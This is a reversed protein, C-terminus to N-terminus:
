PRIPSTLRDVPGTWPEMSADSGDIGAVIRAPTVESEPMRSADLTM